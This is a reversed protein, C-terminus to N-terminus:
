KFIYYYIIINIQIWGWFSIELNIKWNQIKNVDFYAIM